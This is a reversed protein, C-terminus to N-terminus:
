SEQAAEASEESNQSTGEPSTSEEAGNEAATEANETAEPEAVQAVGQLKFQIIGARNAQDQSLSTLAEQYATRAAGHQEQALYIDGRIEAYLSKVSEHGANAVLASAEAYEGSALLVRALRAKALQTIAETKGKEAVSSLLAEADDLKNQDVYIRAALLMSLDAYLSSSYTSSIEEALLLAQGQQSEGFEPSRYFEVLTQYKDSAAQASALKHDQWLNWGVYGSIVVVIPLVLSLWNESWWRKITEIQEEETLHDAM